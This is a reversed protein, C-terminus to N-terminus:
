SCVYVCYLWGFIYIINKEQVYRVKWGSSWGEKVCTCSATWMYRMGGGFFFYIYIFHFQSWGGEEWEGDGFSKLCKTSENTICHCSGNCCEEECTCDISAHVVYWCWGDYWYSHSIDFPLFEFSLIYVSLIVSSEM